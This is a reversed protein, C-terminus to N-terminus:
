DYVNRSCSFTNIQLLFLTLVSIEIQTYDNSTQKNCSAFILTASSNSHSILFWTKIVIQIVLKDSLNLFFLRVNIDLSIDDCCMNSKIVIRCSYKEASKENVSISSRNDVHVGVVSLSIATLYLKWEWM